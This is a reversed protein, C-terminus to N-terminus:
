DLRNFMIDYLKITVSAGHSGWWFWKGGAEHLPRWLVPVGM